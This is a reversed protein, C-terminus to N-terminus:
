MKKHIANLILISSSSVAFFDQWLALDKQNEKEYIRIILM